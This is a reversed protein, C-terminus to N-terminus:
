ATARFTDPIPFLLSYVLLLPALPALERLASGCSGKTALAPAGHEHLLVKPASSTARVARALRAPSALLPPPERSSVFPTPPRNM